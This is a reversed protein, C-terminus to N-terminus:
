YQLPAGPTVWSASSLTGNWSGRADAAEEGTGEDFKWYGGLSAFDSRSSAIPLLMDAVIDAKSRAERWLRLEDVTGHFWNPAASDHGGLRMADSGTHSLPVTTTFSTQASGNLYFVFTSDAKTIALHLWVNTAVQDATTLLYGGDYMGGSDGTADTMIFVLHGDHLGVRFQNQPDGETEKSLIVPEGAPQDTEVKVWLELTFDSPIPVNGVDVFSFQSGALEVAYNTPGSDAGGSDAGGSDAGGSDAGGSDAGGSDAGGSDAGGSDAGGSDAGGGATGDATTRSAETSGCGALVASALLLLMCIAKPQTEHHAVESVQGRHLPCHHAGARDPPAGRRGSGGCVVLSVSDAVVGHIRSM